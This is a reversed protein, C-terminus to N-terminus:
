CLAIQLCWVKQLLTINLLMKSVTRMHTYTFFFKNAMIKEHWIKNEINHSQM